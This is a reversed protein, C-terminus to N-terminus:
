MYTYMCLLIWIKDRVKRVGCEVENHRSVRRGGGEREEKTLDELALALFLVQAFPLQYFLIFLQDVTEKLQASGDINGLRGLM